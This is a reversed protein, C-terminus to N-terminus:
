INKMSNFFKLHLFHKAIHPSPSLIIRKRYVLIDDAELKSDM